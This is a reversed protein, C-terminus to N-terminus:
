RGEHQGFGGGTDTREDRTASIATPTHIAQARNKVVLITSMDRVRGAFRHLQRTTVTKDDLRHLLLFHLSQHYTVGHASRTGFEVLQKARCVLFPGDLTTGRGKTRFGLVGSQRGPIHRPETNGGGFLRQMAGTYRHVEWVAHPVAHARDKPFDNFLVLSVQDDRRDYLGTTRASEHNAIRRAILIRVQGEVQTANTRWGPAVLRPVGGMAPGM